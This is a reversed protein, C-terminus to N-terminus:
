HYVRAEKGANGNVITMRQYKVSPLRGERLGTGDSM